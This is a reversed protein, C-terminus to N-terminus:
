VSSHGSNQLSSHSNSKKPTRIIRECIADALKAVDHKLTTNLSDAEKNIETKAKAIKERSETKAKQLWERQLVVAEEKIHERTKRAETQAKKIKNEINKVLDHSKKVIEDTEKKAGAIRKEREELLILFPKFLYKSLWILLTCFLFLQVILTINIEM